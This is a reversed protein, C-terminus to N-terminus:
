NAQKQFFVKMSQETIVATSEADPPLGNRALIWPDELHTRRELSYASDEGYVALVEDIHNKLDSEIKPAVVSANIPNWRYNKYHKYTCPEVPGHVWAELSETFAPKNRLALSWGQVYYLLKQLKLNTVPDQCEQFFKVIHKAVDLSSAM